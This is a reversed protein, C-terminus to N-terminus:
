VVIELKPKVNIEMGLITALEEMGELDVESGLRDDFNAIADGFRKRQERNIVGREELEKLRRWPDIERDRGNYKAFICTNSNHEGMWGYFQGSKEITVTLGGTPNSLVNQITFRALRKRLKEFVSDEAIEDVIKQKKLEELNM